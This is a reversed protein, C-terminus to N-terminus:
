WLLLICATKSSARLQPARPLFELFDVCTVNANEGCIEPTACMKLLRAEIAIASVVIRAVVTGTMILNNTQAMAFDSHISGAGSRSYVFAFM